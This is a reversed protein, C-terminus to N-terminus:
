RGFILVILENELLSSDGRVQPFGLGSNIASTLAEGLTYGHRHVVVIGAGTGIVTGDVGTEIIRPVYGWFHSRSAIVQLDPSNWGAEKLLGQIQWATSWGDPVGEDYQIQVNGPPTKGELEALFKKRDFNRPGVRWRLEELRVEMVATRERAEAAEKKTVEIQENSRRQLEHQRGAGMRSFLVEAGVGLFVFLDAVFRGWIRAFSDSPPRFVALFMEIVLGVLLAISGIEAARESSEISLRLEDDTAKMVGNNLRLEFFFRRVRQPLENISTM